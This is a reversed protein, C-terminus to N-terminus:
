VHVSELYQLANTLRKELTMGQDSWREQGLHLATIRYCGYLAWFDLRVTWDGHARCWDRIAQIQDDVGEARDVQINLDERNM